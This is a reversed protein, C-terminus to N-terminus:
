SPRVAVKVMAPRLLKGRFSYGRQYEELITQDEVEETEKRDVAQHLNPDFPKGACEMPELGAKKLAELLRQYILEVGRRYEADASEVKLAREFDDVAPLIDRMIEAGAYQVFELRDREARRRFNEFEAQRRLLRDALDAKEAALQDREAAVAALKEALGEEAAPESLAQTTTEQLPTEQNEDSVIDLNVFGM